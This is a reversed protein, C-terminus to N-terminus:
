SQSLLRQAAAGARRGLDVRGLSRVVLDFYASGGASLLVEETQFLDEAACGRALEGLTDLCALIRHEDAQSGPDHRPRRFVGRGAAGPRGLSERGPGGRSRRGRLAVGTRGWPFGWNWWSPWHGVRGASPIWRRVGELSDVLCTFEFGLDSDLTSRVLPHAGPETLENALLIRKVGHDYAV